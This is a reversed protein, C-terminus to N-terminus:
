FASNHTLRTSIFTKCTLQKWIVPRQIHWEIKESIENMTNKVLSKDFHKHLFWEKEAWIEFVAEFHLLNCVILIDLKAISYLGKVRLYFTSFKTWIQHQKKLFLFHQCKSNKRFWINRYHNKMRLFHCIHSQPITSIVPWRVQCWFQFCGKSQLNTYIRPFVTWSMTRSLNRRCIALSTTKFNKINNKFDLSM